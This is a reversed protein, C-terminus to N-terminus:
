PIVFANTLGAIWALFAYVVPSMLAASTLSGAAMLLSTLMPILAQMFSVMNNIAERGVGVATRFTNLGILVLVLYCVAFVVDGFSKEGFGGQMAQLLALLVALVLLQALLRANALIERFLYKAIATLWAQPSLAGAEKVRPLFDSVKPSPLLDRAEADLRQFYGELDAAGLERLQENAIEGPDATQRSTEGAPGPPPSSAATARGLLL